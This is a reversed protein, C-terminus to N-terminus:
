EQAGKGSKCRGEGELRLPFLDFRLPTPPPLRMAHSLSAAFPHQFWLKAVATFM